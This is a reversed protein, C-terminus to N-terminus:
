EVTPNGNGDKRQLHARRAARRQGCPGIKKKLRRLALREAPTHHKVKKSAERARVKGRRM